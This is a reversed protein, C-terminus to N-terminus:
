DKVNLSQQIDRAVFHAFDESKHEVMIRIVPETGSPRLLVRGSDGLYEQWCEANAKSLASLSKQNVVVNKVVQPLPKVKVIASLCGEKKVMDALLIGAYIGDGTGIDSIIIHGSQEGGLYCGCEQMKKCVNHDGVAARLYKIGLDKAAKEYASNTMVTAVVTNNTLMNHKKFTKALAYLIKDGNVIDGREDVAIVRDADGDFALGLDAKHLIVQQQLYEPHTSGSQYNILSGDGTDNLSVVRAGTKAFIQAAIGSASGNASDLVLTLGSLDIDKSLLHNIYHTGITSDKQIPYITNRFTPASDMLAEIKKELLNTLKKGKFDFLKIGNYHPPNHSASIVAGFDAGLAIVGRAAAPTPLIGGYVVSGGTSLVGGAFAESLWQGSERTDRALVVLVDRKLRGLAYGCGYAVEESLEIGAVGRIGDTGFYKM